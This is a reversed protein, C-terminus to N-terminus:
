HAMLVPIDLNNVVFRTAGGFLFERWTSRGYAGMVLVDARAGRAAVLLKMGADSDSAEFPVVEVEPTHLRLYAGVDFGPRRTISSTADREAGKLVIVTDAMEIMPIAAKLAAASQRSHNWAVAVRNGIPAIPGTRPLILTPTGCSIAAEEVQEDAIQELGGASQEVVVLDHCRGVLNLLELPNGEGVEFACAVGMATCAARFRVEAAATIPADRLSAEAVAPHHAGLVTKLTALERLTYLATLRAGYRTALAVTADFAPSWERYAPTHLLISKWTM